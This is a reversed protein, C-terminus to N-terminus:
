AIGSLSEPESDAEDEKKEREFALLVDGEPMAALERRAALRAAHSFSRCLARDVHEAKSTPVDCRLWCMLFGLPRGAHGRGSAATRSVICRRDRHRFCTAEFANKSAHYAIIGQELRVKGVAAFRAHAGVLPQPVAPAAVDAEPLPAPPPPAAANPVELNDGVLDHGPGELEEDAGLAHDGEHLNPVDVGFAENDRAAGDECELPQLVGGMDNNLLEVDDTAQMAEEFLDALSDEFMAAEDPLSVDSVDDDALDEVPQVCWSPHVNIPALEEQAM